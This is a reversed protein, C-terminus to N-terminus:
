GFRVLKKEVDGGERMADGHVSAAVESGARLLRAVDGVVVLGDGVVKLSGRVRVEVLVLRSLDDADGLAAVVVGTGAGRGRAQRASSRSDARGLLVELLGPVDEAAPGSGDSLSVGALRSVVLEALTVEGM